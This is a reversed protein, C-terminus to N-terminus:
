RAPGYAFAPAGTVLRGHWLVVRWGPGRARGGAVAALIWLRAQRPTARPRKARRGPRGRWPRRPRGTDPDCGLDTFNREHRRRQAERFEDAEDMAAVLARATGADMPGRATEDVVLRKWGKRPDLKRARRRAAHSLVSM